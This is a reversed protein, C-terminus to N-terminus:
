YFNLNPVEQTRLGFQTTKTEDCLNRLSGDSKVEYSFPSIYTLYNGVDNIIKTDYNPTTPEIYANIEIQEYNKDKSKIELRQKPIILVQGPVLNANIQLRNTIVIDGVYVNYRKSILWLSEGLSVVHLENVDACNALLEKTFANMLVSVESKLKYGQSLLNTTHLESSM